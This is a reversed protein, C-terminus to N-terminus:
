SRAIGQKHAEIVYFSQWSGLSAPSAADCSSVGITLMSIVKTWYTSLGVLLPLSDDSQPVLSVIDGAVLQKGREDTRDMMFAVDWEIEAHDGAFLETSYRSSQATIHASKLDHPRCCGVHDVDCCEGEAHPMVVNHLVTPGIAGSSLEGLDSVILWIKMLASDRVEAISRGEKEELQRM